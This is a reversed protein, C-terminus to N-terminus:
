LAHAAGRILLRGPFTGTTSDRKGETMASKTVSGLRATRAVQRMLRSSISPLSPPLPSSFFPVNILLFLVLVLLPISSLHHSITCLHFSVHPHLPFSTLQLHHVLYYFCFIRYLFPLSTSFVSKQILKQM